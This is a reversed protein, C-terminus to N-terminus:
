QLIGKEKLLLNYLAVKIKEAEKDFASAAMAPIFLIVLSLCPVIIEIM